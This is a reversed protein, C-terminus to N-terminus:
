CGVVWGVVWGGVLVWGTSRFLLSGLEVDVEVLNAYSDLNQVM